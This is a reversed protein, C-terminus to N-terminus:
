RSGATTPEVLGDEAVSLDNGTTTARPGAAITEEDIGDAAPDEVLVPDALTPAAARPTIARIASVVAITALSLVAAVIGAGLLATAISLRAQGGYVDTATATTSNLATVLADRETVSMVIGLVLVGLSAILAVAPILLAALPISRRSMPM